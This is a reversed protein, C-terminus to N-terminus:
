SIVSVTGHTDNEAQKQEKNPNINTKKTKQNFNAVTPPLNDELLVGM